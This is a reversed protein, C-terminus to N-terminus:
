EPKMNFINGIEQEIKDIVGYLLLRYQTSSLNGLHNFYDEHAKIYERTNAVNWKSFVFDPLGQIDQGNKVEFIHAGNGQENRVILYDESLLNFWELFLNDVSNSHPTISDVGLVESIPVDLAKSIDILMDRKFRSSDQRIYNYLYHRDIGTENSLWSVSKNQQKLLKGINNGISM